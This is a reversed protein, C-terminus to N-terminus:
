SLEKSATHTGGQRDGTIVRRPQGPGLREMRSAPVIGQEPARLVTQPPGLTLRGARL